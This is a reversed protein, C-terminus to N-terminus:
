GPRRAVLTLFSKVTDGPAAFRHRERHLLDWGAFRQPLTDADFLCHGAPDFMALYTTGRVLVNLVMVGGPRVQSQLAALQASATECDFFMLLGICVVADYDDVIRHRRLDAVAAQVPLSEARAARVLHAIAAKSGDLADVRCGQRAAALALNGLGCGCDLVRGHLYPLALQEFPNLALDQASAPRRFQADFFRLSADSNM